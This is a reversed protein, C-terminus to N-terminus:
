SFKRRIEIIKDFATKAKEIDCNFNYRSKLTKLRNLTQMSITEKSQHFKAETMREKTSKPKLVGKRHSVEPNYEETTECVEWELNDLSCNELDGDIHNAYCLWPDAPYGRFAALVIRSLHIIDLRKKESNWLSVTTYGLKNKGRAMIVPEFRKLSKVRGLNSVYYKPYGEVPRWIEEM